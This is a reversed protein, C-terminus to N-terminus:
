QHLRTYPSTTKPLYIFLHSINTLFHSLQFLQHEIQDIPFKSIITKLKIFKLLTKPTDTPFNIFNSITMNVMLRTREFLFMHGSPISEVHYMAIRQLRLRFMKKILEFMWSIVEMGVRLCRDDIM